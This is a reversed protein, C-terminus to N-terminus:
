TEYNAEHSYGSRHRCLNGKRVVNFSSSPYINRLINAVEVEAISQQMMDHKSCVFHLDTHFGCCHESIM